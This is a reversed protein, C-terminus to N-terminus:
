AADDYMGPLIALTDIAMQNGQRKNAQYSLPAHSLPQESM